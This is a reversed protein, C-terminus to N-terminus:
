EKPEPRPDEHKIKEKSEEFNFEKFAPSENNHCQLCKDKGPEDNIENDPVATREDGGEEELGFIDGGSDQEAAAALRQKVHYAGAGHCEECQVGKTKDFRKEKKEAPAKFATVHCKLCADETQPDGLGKESAIKRADESALTEWAKSHKMEKWKGYQDGKNKAAHCNKCKDVGVYSADKYGEALVIGAAGVVLVALFATLGPISGPKM